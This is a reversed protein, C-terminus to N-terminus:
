SEVLELNIREDLPPFCPRGSGLVVPSVFLRYQDILGLKTLTSALGAGGVSLDKGPLGKM